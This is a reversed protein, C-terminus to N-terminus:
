QMGSFKIIRRPRRAIRRVQGAQPESTSAVVALQEELDRWKAEPWRDAGAIWAAARAYVRCDLAENRERLKQWELKSFGRRNKVTVLQEAVFQKCWESDAWSPLHVTGAPFRLGEALEEDTPRELRLFRYTETKFTSVAVIWLRAGRRVKKGGETADVLTPGSVPSSRNFGEVGKIPSVQGVGMRRGWTYVASSEYGSDIALRAIKLAAGSTHTWTQGLVRELAAWTEAHEPGGDIVVHDVLWSELGRGWAWVDIEVRDKQVDAGATLFLGGAPVTGNAWSERRDYLRQWDPAEGSEVWTEGLVTNRFVRLADDSGQTAEWLRAISEWSQWGPPSYLASIHFGVTGPDEAVATARWIGAALMTAKASETIPQDCSECLYHVSAPQGKDWKLREFKLWQMEGCHPCPVFFRRQDSAEFEREIRSLGRITPTSVLFAKARHAFTAMRACALAVPDGEEDASAPYADVEDLFLYRAPMSRLGVASNAGTMVLTGGPFDKSLMTNGADRSRAPKVRERLIPSEDILTDIRQRSNRKAMEVTPQVALVPGPAHHIIFGLFNNGAETAGVQAGKMFVVRRCPHSPSLCDMIERLYPTRATRYRGPEASARSSLVRHRDAWESVTLLPDPRM